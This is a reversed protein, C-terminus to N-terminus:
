GHQQTSSIKKKKRPRGSNIEESSLSTLTRAPDGLRRKFVGSEEEKKKTRQVLTVNQEVVDKHLPQKLLLYPGCM